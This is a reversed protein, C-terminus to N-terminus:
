WEDEHEDKPFMKITSASKKQESDQVEDIM